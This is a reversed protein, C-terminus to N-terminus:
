SFNRQQCHIGKYGSPCRCTYGSSSASNAVCLGGNCQVGRCLDVSNICGDLIKEKREAKDFDIVMDNIHFDSLCGKFSLTQKLHFAAKARSAVAAPLGGIYLYNKTALDFTEKPGSNAVAQLENDDIKM